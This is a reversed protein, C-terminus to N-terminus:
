RDVKFYLFLKNQAVDLGTMNYTFNVVPAPVATEVINQVYRRRCLFLRLISHNCMGSLIFLRPLYYLVLEQEACFIQGGVDSPFRERMLSSNFLKSVLNAIGM